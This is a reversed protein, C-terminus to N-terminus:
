GTERTHARRENGCEGTAYRCADVVGAAAREFTYRSALESSRLAFRRYTDEGVLLSSAREAWLIPNLRCVFGNEGDQVLEGAVGAHPSVIVPLGAACAENAVVGWPDWRSPLLFIRASQYLGPLEDQTAFGHFEAEVLASLCAAAKRLNEEETGSGVFLISTRRGLRQAVAAAVDLAFLPNKVEEIRGCFIFDFRKHREVDCPAFANNDICLCSQFCSEPNVRYSKYLRLGGYSAAIFARSRSYVLRRILSERWSLSNESIVTGDTMPVHPISKALAYGFAYLFTPNFGTTIIVNPALRKLVGIVDPNNNTFNSGPRHYHEKLFVHDFGMQPLERQRNPTREGCFIAQLAVDATGGIKQFIPIRFSPPHHTVLAIKLM